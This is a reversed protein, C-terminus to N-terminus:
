IVCALFGFLMAYKSDPHRCAYPILPGRAASMVVCRSNKLHEILESNSTREMFKFSLLQNDISFNRVPNQKMYTVIEQRVADSDDKNRGLQLCIATFMCNGDHPVDDVVFDAFNGTDTVASLASILYM